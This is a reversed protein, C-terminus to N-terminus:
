GTHPNSNAKELRRQMIRVSDLKKRLCGYGVCKKKKGNERKRLFLIDAIWDLLFDCSFRIVHMRFILSLSFVSLNVSLGIFKYQHPGAHM